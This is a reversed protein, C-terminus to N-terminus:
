IVEIEVEKEANEAIFCADFIIQLIATGSVSGSPLEDRLIRPVLPVVIEPEGDSIAGKPNIYRTHVRGILPTVHWWSAFVEFYANKDVKSALRLFEARSAYKMNVM